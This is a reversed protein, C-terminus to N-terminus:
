DSIPVQIAQLVEKTADNQVFAVLSLKKLDMPRDANPFPRNRAYNDLYKGLNARLQALDLSVTQRTNKDKVALGDAGGPMARVVRHHFRLNNGGTYKVQEEVLALRLRMQEGPKDVDSAEATIELKDGKRVASAKLKLTSPTELLNDIIKRFGQYRDESEGIGGGTDGPNPRGNFFITPTGPIDDGYFEMRAETDPNTLPDPGPIHLHYQLLIVETPKYSKELGDFALDAAVCPPCQAGTFLEVLVARDSKAKRGAYAETKFPPMKKLYEQDARGELKALQASVEKWEDARGALKLAAALQSVVRIQSDLDDGPDLLREALRAYEVAIGSLGPQEALVRSVRVAFERQWRSGYAEAAKSARAAWGRVEELKAKKAGAESLVTLAADFLEPGADPNALVEKAAEFEDAFSTLRTPELQAFIIQNRQSFTGLIKKGPEKPVKGDFVLEQGQLRLTFHVQDGKVSLNELTTPPVGEVRSLVSGTWKGDKAELQILWFTRAQGQSFFTLKWNGAPPDAALAGASLSVLLGAVLVKLIRAM